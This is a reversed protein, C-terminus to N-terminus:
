RFHTRLIEFDNLTVKGDGNFDSRAGTVPQSLYEARWLEFDTITITGSCDVDGESHKECAPTTPSLVDTIISTVTPSASPSVSTPPEIACAPRVARVGTCVPSMNTRDQQDMETSQFAIKMQECTTEKERPYLDDCSRLAASYMDSFNSSAHLYVTLARYVIALSKEKGIGRTTCGNFSGGSVMLYFTKNMVGSNLHVGGNDSYENCEYYPSFLKDPSRYRYCEGSADIARTDCHVLLCRGGVDKEGTTCDIAADSNTFPPDDFQRWVGAGEEGFTWDDSDLAYGFIDAISENLAGSQQIYMLNATKFIYGHTLEHAVLDPAMVGSCFIAHASSPFDLYFFANPCTILRGSGHVYGRLRGGEGDFSDRGFTNFFYNYTTGFFDYAKNADSDSVPPQGEIRLVPCESRDSKGRCDHIERDISEYIHPSKLLIQGQSLEVFYEQSFTPPHLENEVLIAYTIYNKTDDSLGLLQQNVVYKKFGVAHVTEGSAVDRGAETLAIEQARGQSITEAELSSETVVNADVAYIEKKDKLHVSLHSGYVPIGAVKQTFFYHQANVNINNKKLFEDHTDDEKRELLSNQIFNAPILSQPTNSAGSGESVGQINQEQQLEAPRYKPDKQLFELVAADGENKTKFLYGEDKYLTIDAVGGEEEVSSEPAVGDVNIVNASAADSRQVNIIIYSGIVAVALIAIVILVYLKLSLKM